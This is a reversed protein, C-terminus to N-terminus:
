AGKKVYAPIRIYVPASDSPELTQGSAIMASGLRAVEGGLSEPNYVIETSKGLDNQRKRLAEVGPGTVWIRDAVSLIEEASGVADPIIQTLVGDSISFGGYYFEDRKADKVTLFLERDSKVCAALAKMSPVGAMPLGRAWCIGKAAALGVRLGTFSGPGISVAVGEIDFLTLGAERLTEIMFSHVINKKKGESSRSIIM